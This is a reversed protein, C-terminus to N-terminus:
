NRRGVPPAPKASRSRKWTSWSSWTNWAWLATLLAMMLDPRLVTAIAYLACLPACALLSVLALTHAARRSKRGAVLGAIMAALAVLVFLNANAALFSLLADFANM